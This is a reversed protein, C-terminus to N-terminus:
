ELKHVSAVLRPVKSLRQVWSSVRSTRKEDRACWCIASFLNLILQWRLWHSLDIKLCLFLCLQQIIIKDKEGGKTTLGGEQPVLQWNPNPFWVGKRGKSILSLVKRKSLTMSISPESSGSVGRILATIPGPQQLGGMICREESEERKEEHVYSIIKTNRKRLPIGPRTNHCKNVGREQKRGTLTKRELTAKHM